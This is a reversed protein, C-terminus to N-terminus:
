QGVKIEQAKRAAVQKKYLQSELGSGPLPAELDVVMGDANVWIFQPIRYIELREMFAGIDDPVIVEWPREPGHDSGDKETISIELVDFFEGYKEAMMALSIAERGATTSWPASVFIYTEVETELPHDLGLDAFMSGKGTSTLRRNLDVAIRRLESEAEETEGIQKILAVITHAPYKKNYYARASANLIAARRLESDVLFDNKMMLSDVEALSLGKALRNYMEAGGFRTSYEEFISEYFLNFLGYWGPNEFHLGQGALARDYIEKKPLGAALMMEAFTSEAYRGAFSSSALGASLEGEFNLLNTRMQRTGILEANQAFFRYYADDIRALTINLDEMSDAPSKEGTRRFTYRLEGKQWTNILVRENEPSIEVEYKAGPTLYLPASYRRLGLWARCTDTISIELNFKGTSDVAASVRERVAKSLPDAYVTLSIQMGAYGEAKGSVEAKQANAPFATYILGWFLLIKFITTSNYQM